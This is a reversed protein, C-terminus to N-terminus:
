QFVIELLVRQSLLVTGDYFTSDKVNINAISMDIYLMRHMRPIADPDPQRVLNNRIFESVINRNAM